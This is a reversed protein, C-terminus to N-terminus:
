KKWGLYSNFIVFICRFKLEKWKGNMALFAWNWSSSRGTKRGSIISRKGNPWGDFGVASEKEGMRRKRGLPGDAARTSPCRGDEGEGVSRENCSDRIDPVSEREWVCVCVIEMGPCGRRWWWRRASVVISHQLSVHSLISFRSVKVVTLTSHANYHTYSHTYTKHKGGRGKTEARKGGQGGDDKKEVLPVMRETNPDRDGEM